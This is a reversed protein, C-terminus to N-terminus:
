LEAYLSSLRWVKIVDDALKLEQLHRLKAISLTKWKYSALSKEQM